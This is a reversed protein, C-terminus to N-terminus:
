GLGLEHLFFWNAFKVWGSPSPSLPSVNSLVALAVIGMTFSEIAAVYYLGRFCSFRITKGLARDAKTERKRRFIDRISWAVAVGSLVTGFWAITGNSLLAFSLIYLSLLVHCLLAIPVTCAM